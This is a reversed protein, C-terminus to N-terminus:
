FAVGLHGGVGWRSLGSSTSNVLINNYFTPTWTGRADVTFAKYTYGIGTGLPVTMVNDSGSSFDSLAPQNNSISYSSWGLGGYVYPELLGTMNQLWIPANLRLAGELGNSVLTTNSASGLATVSNATGVYAAEFGIISHTGGILRADWGGGGSTVSRATSNTFDTYSGGVVLAFGFASGYPRYNMENAETGMAASPPPNEATPAPAEEAPQAQEPEAQAVTAAPACGLFTVTRGNAPLASTMTTVEGRGVTAIRSPDVGQQVLYDKASDAREDSLKQNYDESGTTDTYGQLRVTREPKNQMWKAVGDLAGKANTDLDRSGTTFSVTVGMDKCVRTQSDAAAGTAPTLSQSGPQSSQDDAKAMGAIGLLIAAGLVWVINRTPM